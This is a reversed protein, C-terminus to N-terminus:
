RGRGGAVLAGAVTADIDENPKRNGLATPNVSLSSNGQSAIVRAAAANFSGGDASDPQATGGLALRAAWAAELRARLVCWEPAAQRVDASLAHQLTERDFGIDM